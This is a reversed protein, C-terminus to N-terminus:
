YDSECMKNLTGNVHNNNNNCKIVIIEYSLIPQFKVEYSNNERNKQRKKARQAREHTITTEVNTQHLFKQKKNHTHM